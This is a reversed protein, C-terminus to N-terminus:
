TDPRILRAVAQKLDDLRFPRRVLAAARERLPIGAGSWPELLVLPPEGCAALAADLTSEPGDWCALLLAPRPAPGDKKAAGSITAADM